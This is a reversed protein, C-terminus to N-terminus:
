YPNSKADLIHLELVTYNREHTNKKMNCISRVRAYKHVLDIVMISKDVIKPHSRAFFFASTNLEGLNRDSQHCSFLRENQLPTACESYHINCFM